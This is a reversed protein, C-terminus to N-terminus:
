KTIRLEGSIEADALVEEPTAKARPGRPGGGNENSVEFVFLGFRLQFAQHRFISFFCNAM